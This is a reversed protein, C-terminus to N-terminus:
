KIIITFIDTIVKSYGDNKARLSVVYKGAPIKHNLAVEFVGNGRVNVYKKFEEVSFNNTSKMDEISILIPNTGEIGEMKSTVWPINNEIRSPSLTSNDIVLSDPSYQVYDTILFGVKQDECAM